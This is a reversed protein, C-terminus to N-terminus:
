LWATSVPRPAYEKNQATTQDNRTYIRENVVSTSDWTDRVLTPDNVIGVIALFIGILIEPLFYGLLSATLALVLRWACTFPIFCSIKYNGFLEDITMLNKKMFFILFSLNCLSAGVNVLSWFWTNWPWKIILFCLVLGFLIITTINGVM